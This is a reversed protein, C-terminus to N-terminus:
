SGTRTWKLVSACGCSAAWKPSTSLFWSLVQIDDADVQMEFARIRIGADALARILVNRWLRREAPEDNSRPIPAPRSTCHDLFRVFASRAMAEQEANLRRMM